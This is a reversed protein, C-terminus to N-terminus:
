TPEEDKEVLHLFGRASGPEPAPTARSPPPAVPQTSAALGEVQEGDRYLELTSRPWAWVIIRKEQHEVMLDDPEPGKALVVITEGAAMTVDDGWPELRLQIEEELSNVLSIRLEVDEPPRSANTM